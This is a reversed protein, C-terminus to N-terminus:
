ADNGEPYRANLNTLFDGTWPSAPHAGDDIFDLLALDADIGALERDIRTITHAPDQAAIHTADAETFLGEDGHDLNPCVNRYNVKEMHDSGRHIEHGINRDWAHWPGPTAAEAIGREVLLDARRALIRDRLPTTM